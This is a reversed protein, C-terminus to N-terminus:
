SKIVFIKKNVSNMHKLLKIIQASYSWENDYWITFKFENPTMSICSNIDIITPSTTTLFDSSVLHGDYNITIEKCKNLHNFIEILNTNKKLKVNLDVMSVNNTPIRVSSGHLKDQLKPLIKTASKSAGTSHPIINNIVSRHSRNKLHVGDIVHQSATAAHVTLFNSSEIIYKEDLIKLIPVICNTTCSSGSVISEGKYLEHNGNYLYQPTNDKPPACMILHDVNHNIASEQTLFKGTTDIVYNVDNNNWMDSDPVRHNLFKIHNMKNKTIINITNENIININKNPIVQKHCSDHSLYSPIKGIEFDPMNIAKIVINKDNICQTLISKGIRGLGNIGVKIM